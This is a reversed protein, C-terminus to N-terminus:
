VPSFFRMTKRLRLALTTACGVVISLCVGVLGWYNVTFLSGVISIIVGVITTMSMGLSQKTFLYPIGLYCSFTFLLYILSLYPLFDLGESLSPFFIPVFVWAGILLSISGLFTLLVVKLILQNFERSYEKLDRKGLFYDQASFLYFTGLFFLPSALKDAVAFIGNMKYGLAVQIVYKNINIMMMWGLANLVMPLSYSLISKFHSWQIFSKSFQERKYGSLFAVMMAIVNSAVFAMLVSHLKNSSYFVAWLEGLTFVMSRVIMTATYHKIQRNGRLLQMIWTLGIQSALILAGLFLLKVPALLQVIFAMLVILLMISFIVVSSVTVGIKKQQLDNSSLWLYVADTVQLSFIPSLITVTSIALDYKGTDSYGLQVAIIPFIILSILKSSYTGLGYVWAQKGIAQSPLLHSILKRM